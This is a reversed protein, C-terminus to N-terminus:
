SSQGIHSLQIAATDRKTYAMEERKLSGKFQPVDQAVASTDPHGWM